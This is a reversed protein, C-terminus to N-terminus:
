FRLSRLDAPTDIDVALQPAAVSLIPQDGARLLARAGQDGNLATLRPRWQAPFLAPIGLTDAYASAVACGPQERGLAVLARLHAAVLAPQDVGLVLIALSPDAIAQVGAAISRGMGETWDPVQVERWSLGRLAARCGDIEAGLTVILEAPDTALAALAMRRILSIGDIDLLQKPRGLRRSGGAALLLALHAHEPV